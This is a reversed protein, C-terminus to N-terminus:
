ATQDVFPNAIEMVGDDPGLITISPGRAIIIGLNRTKQIGNDSGDTDRLYEVCNDLVMNLLPDYGKLVGVAERGGQFKIRVKQDIYRSLDMITEKKKRNPEDSNKSAM